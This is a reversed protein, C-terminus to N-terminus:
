NKKVNKYRERWRVLLCIAVLVTMYIKCIKIMKTEQTLNMKEFQILLGFSKENLLTQDSIFQYKTIINRKELRDIRYNVIAKNTKLKKAINSNSQRSDLELENLIKTDIKDLTIIQTM